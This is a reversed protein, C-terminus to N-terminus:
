LRAMGGDPLCFRAAARPPQVQRSTLLWKGENRAREGPHPLSGCKRLAARKGRQVPFWLALLLLASHWSKM